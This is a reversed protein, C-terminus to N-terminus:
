PSVVTFKTRVLYRESNVDISWSLEPKEAPENATDLDESALQIRFVNGGVHKAEIEMSQNNRECRITATGVPSKHVETEKTVVRVIAAGIFRKKTSDYRFRVTEPRVVVPQQRTFVVVHSDQRGSKPDKLWVVGSLSAAKSHAIPLNIKLFQGESNAEIEGLIGNMGGTGTVELDASDIPATFVIPLKATVREAEDAFSFHSSKEAFCLLGELQFAFAIPLRGGPIETGELAISVISRSSKLRDPTEFRIRMAISEQPHIEQASVKVDLCACNVGVKSFVVKKRFPNKLTLDITGTKNAPLTGLDVRCLLNPGQSSIVGEAELTFGDEAKGLQAFALLIGVISVRTRTIM